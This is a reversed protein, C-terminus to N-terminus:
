KESTDPAPEALVFFIRQGQKAAALSLLSRLAQIVRGNKGIVKGMQDPPITATIRVVSEQTTDTLQVAQPDDVILSILYRATEVLNPTERM